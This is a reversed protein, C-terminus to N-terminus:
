NCRRGLGFRVTATRHGVRFVLPLCAPASRLYFGGAYALGNARFGPCDVFRLKDFVGNGGNEWAIAGRNRWAAATRLRRRPSGIMTVAGVGFGTRSSPPGTARDPALHWAWDSDGACDRLSLRGAIEVVDVDVAAVRDCSPGRRDRRGQAAGEAVASCGNCGFGFRGIRVIGVGVPGWEDCFRLLRSGYLQIALAFLM